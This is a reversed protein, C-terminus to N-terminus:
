NSVPRGNPKAASLLHDAILIAAMSITDAPEEAPTVRDPSGDELEPWTAQLAQVFKNAEDKSQFHARFNFSLGDANHVVFKNRLRAIEQAANALKEPLLELGVAVKRRRDLSMDQMAEAVPPPFLMRFAHNLTAEILASCQIVRLADDPVQLLRVFHDKDLGLEHALQSWEGLIADDSLESWKRAV